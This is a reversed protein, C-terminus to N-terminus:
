KLPLVIRLDGDEFKMFDFKKKFGAQTWLNNLSVYYIYMFFQIRAISEPMAYEINYDKYLNLIDVTRIKRVYNYNIVNGNVMSACYQLYLLKTVNKTVDMKLTDIFKISLVKKYEMVNVTDTVQKGNEVLKFNGFSINRNIYDIRLDRPNYAINNDGLVYYGNNYIFAVLEFLNSIRKTEVLFPKNVNIPKYKSTIYDKFTCNWCKWLFIDRDAKYLLCMSTLSMYGLDELEDQNIYVKKNNKGSMVYNLRDKIYYDLEKFCDLNTISNFLFIARNGKHRQALDFVSKYFKVNLEKIAKEVYERPKGHKVECAKRNKKCVEKILSKLQKMNSKNLSIDDTDIELGLYDIPKNKDYYVTKSPNVELGLKNLSDTLIRLLYNLKSKSNSGILIDDSYRCYFESEEAMLNDVDKLIYNAFYSSLACGPMISLYRDIEEGTKGDIYSHIRFLDRILQRGKLDGLFLENVVKNITDKNVSLFYNSIDIKAFVLDQKNNKIVQSVTFISIGKKYAYSTESLLDSKNHYLISTLIKQLISDNENFIFIERLKGNPKPILARRPPQWKYDWDLIKNLIELYNFEESPIKNNELLSMMVENHYKPNKLEVELRM